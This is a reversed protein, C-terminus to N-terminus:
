VLSRRLNTWLLRREASNGRRLMAWLVVGSTVVGDNAAENPPRV